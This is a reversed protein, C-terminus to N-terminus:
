YVLFKFPYSESVTGYIDYTQSRQKGKLTHIMRGKMPVSAELFRSVAVPNVAKLAAIGRASITLNISRLSAAKKSTPLRM